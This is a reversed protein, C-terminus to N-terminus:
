IHLLFYRKNFLSYRRRTKIRPKCFPVLPRGYYFFLPKRLARPFSPALILKSRVLVGGVRYSEKHIHCSVSPTGIYLPSAMSSKVFPPARATSVFPTEPAKMLKSPAPRLQSMKRMRFGLGFALRQGLPIEKFLQDVHDFPAARGANPRSPPRLCVNSHCSPLM